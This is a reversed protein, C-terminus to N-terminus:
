IVKNSATNFGFTELISLDHSIGMNVKRGEAGHGIQNIQEQSFDLSM